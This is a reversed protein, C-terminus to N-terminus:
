NLAFYKNWLNENVFGKTYLLTRTMKPTKNDDKLTEGDWTNKPNSVRSKTGVMGLQYVAAGLGVASMFKNLGSFKDPFFADSIRDALSVDGWSGGFMAGLAVNVLDDVYTNGVITVINTNLTKAFDTAASGGVVYTLESEAIASFNAPMMM